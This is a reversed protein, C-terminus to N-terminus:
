IGFRDVRQLECTFEGPDDTLTTIQFTATQGARVEAVFTTGTDIRTGGSEFAVTINYTSTESSNNKLTGEAAVDGADDTYCSLDEVDDPPPNETNDSNTEVGDVTRRDVEDIEDGVRNALVVIAVVAVIALVGFIGGVILGIKLCGAGSKAPPPAGPGWPGAPPQGWQGPPQQGWQGP